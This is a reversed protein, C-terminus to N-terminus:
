SKPEETKGQAEKDKEKVEKDKEQKTKKGKSGKEGSKGEMRLFIHPPLQRKAEAVDEYTYIVGQLDRTGTCGKLSYTYVRELPIGIKEAVAVAIGPRKVLGCARPFRCVLERRGLFRNEQDSLIRIEVAAM